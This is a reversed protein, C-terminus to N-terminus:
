NILFKIVNECFDTAKDGIMEMNSIVEVFLVGSGPQCKGRNLRTIHNERYEAEMKNIHNEVDYITSALNKDSNRYSDFAINLSESVYAYLGRLEEEADESISYGKGHFEAAFEYINDAKGAIRDIDLLLNHTANIKIQNKEGIETTSLKILFTTLQSNIYKLYERNSKLRDFDDLKGDIFAEFAIRVNEKAFECMKITHAIIQGQAYSPSNMLRKDLINSNVLEVEHSYDKILLKSIAILQNIFPYFIILSFLNFLTHINAIVLETSGSFALTSSIAVMQKGFPYFIIAGIVNILLHILAARKSDASTNFASILTPSVSGINSGLIVPYALEPTINGVSALAILIAMVASSSQFLLTFVIGLTFAFFHKQGMSDLIQRFLESNNFGSVSKGIMEISIAVLAFGIFVFSLDRKNKEKGSLYLVTGIIVLFPVFLRPNFIIIQNKITTGLNAGLILGAASNLSIINSNVMGVTMITTASSFQVIITLVTGAVVSSFKSKTLRNMVNKLKTKAASELGEGLLKVGFLFLSVASLFSIASFISM